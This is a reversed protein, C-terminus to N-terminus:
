CYEVRGREQCCEGLTPGRLTSGVGPFCELAYPRELESTSTSYITFPVLAGRITLAAGAASSLAPWEACMASHSSTHTEGDSDPPHRLARGGSGPLHVVTALWEQYKVYERQLKSSFLSQCISSIENSSHLQHQMAGSADFQCLRHLRLRQGKAHSDTTSDTM